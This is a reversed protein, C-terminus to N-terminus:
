VLRRFDKPLQQVQLASAHTQKLEQMSAQQSWSPPKSKEDLAKIEVLIAELKELQDPPLTARLDAVIEPTMQRKIEYLQQQYQHAALREDLSNRSSPEPAQNPLSSAPTLPQINSQPAPPRAPSRAITSYSTQKVESQPIALASFACRSSFLASTSLNRSIAAPITNKVNLLVGAQRCAHHQQTTAQM